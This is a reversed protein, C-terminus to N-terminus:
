STILTAKGTIHAWTEGVGSVHAAATTVCRGAPTGTPTCV